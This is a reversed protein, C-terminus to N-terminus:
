PTAELGLASLLTRFKASTEALEAEPRSGEVVGAGAYVRVARGAVEACRITVAWEGDGDADCWGVLGSYFGRPFEELEEIAARAADTPEGCVAPTPHLAEALQLSTPAPDRLTGEIRTGLHWLSATRTVSPAAPVQLSTCYPALREAVRDVVLAHERLDKVSSALEEGRRADEDPDPSRPATGALPHSVVLDGRRAALLEPSNGVLTRAGSNDAANEAPDTVDAAFVYGTPNRAALRELVVALDLPAPATLTAARALVVKELDGEAIMELARRVAAAYRPPAPEARFDWRTGVSAPASPPATLPPAPPADGEDRAFTPTRHVHGPVVLRAKGPAFGVAGVVLPDPNGAARQAALTAAAMAGVSGPSADPVRTRVGTTRLTVERTSFLFAGPGSGPGPPVDVSVDQGVPELEPGASTPTSTM